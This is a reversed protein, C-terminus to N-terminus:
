RNDHVLSRKPVSPWKYSGGVKEMKEVNYEQDNVLLIEALDFADKYVVAIVSGVRVERAVTPTNM